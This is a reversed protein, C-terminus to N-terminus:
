TTAQVAQLIVSTVVGPDSIMSLHPAQVETIHAHANEAMSLQLPFTVPLPAPAFKLMAESGREASHKGPNLGFVSGRPVFDLACETVFSDNGVYNILEATEDAQPRVIRFANAM